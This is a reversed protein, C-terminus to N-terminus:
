DYSRRQPLGRRQPRRSLSPRRLNEGPRDEAARTGRIDAAGAVSDARNGRRTPSQEVTKASGRTRLPRLRRSQRAQRRIAAERHQRNIDRAELYSAVWLKHNEIERRRAASWNVAAAATALNYDGEARIVDALGRAYSGAITTGPYGWYGSWGGGGAYYPITTEDNSSLESNVSSMPNRGFPVDNAGFPMTNGKAATRNEGCIANARHTTHGLQNADVPGIMARGSPAGRSATGNGSAIAGSKGAAFTPSQASLSAAAVAALMLCGILKM